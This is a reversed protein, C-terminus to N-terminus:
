KVTKTKKFKKFSLLCGEVVCGGGKTLGYLDNNKLQSYKHNMIAKAIKQADKTNSDSIEAIKEFDIFENLHLSFVDTAQEKLCEERSKAVNYLFWLFDIIVYVFSLLNKVVMVQILFDNAM